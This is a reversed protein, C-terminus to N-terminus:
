EVKNLIIITNIIFRTAGIYRETTQLNNNKSLTKFSLSKTEIKYILVGDIEHRKMTCFPCGRADWFANMKVLYEHGISDYEFEIVKSQVNKGTFPTYANKIQEAAHQAYVEAKLKSQSYAQGLIILFIFVSIIKKVVINM